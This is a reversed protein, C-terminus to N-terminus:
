HLAPQCRLLLTTSKGLFLHQPLHFSPGKVMVVHLVLLEVWTPVNQMQEAPFHIALAWPSVGPLRGWSGPLWPSAAPPGLLRAALSLYYHWAACPVSPQACM